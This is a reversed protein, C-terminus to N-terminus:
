GIKEVSLNNRRLTADLTFGASLGNIIQFTDGASVDVIATANIAWDSSSSQNVEVATFAGANTQIALSRAGATTARWQASIRYKGSTPFTGVGTSINYIGHTDFVKDTYKVIANAAVSAGSDDQYSCAILEEGGLVWWETGDSVISVSSFEGSVEFTTQNNITETSDGDLTVVNETSDIKVIRLIKGTATSAAPLTVTFAASTSDVLIVDDTITATYAATKTTINSSGAGTNILRHAGDKYVYLGETNATGDSYWIMGEVSNSPLASQPTLTSTNQKPNKGIYAM